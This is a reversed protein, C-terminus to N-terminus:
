MIYDNISDILRDTQSLRNIIRHIEEAPPIPLMIRVFEDFNINEVTTGAKTFKLLIYRELAKLCIYIYEALSKDVLEIAKIDQNITAETNLIAVPLTHRLIGSRAVILVTGPTYLQQTTAGEETMKVISTTIYKTKMDKSTIWPVNGNWYEAHSMSPTKGGSFWAINSLREWAWGDPLDFLVEKDVCIVTGDIFREYYSNDDGRFIISEHKDRKIKGQQILAEKETHIRELLVAAPEDDPNQPVLQGRIALDLIHTRVTTVLDSIEAQSQQITQVYPLATSIWSALRKQEKLSPVPVLFAGLKQANINSQNVGDTKVLACYEKAYGSNMVANLYEANIHTRLRILYGAYICPIDGRYIATKGVWEASNTRNFLLDGPSLLYREMDEEDSSFVLDGYDIEGAQINGMRLVAIHGEKESKKATGYPLDDSISFVRAWEWGEPVEFPIENEICKVTGDAHKEYHL